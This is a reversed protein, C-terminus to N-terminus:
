RAAGEIALGGLAERLQERTQEVGGTVSGDLSRMDVGSLVIRLAFAEDHFRDVARRALEDDTEARTQPRPALREGTDPPLPERDGDRTAAADVDPDVPVEERETEVCRLRGGDPGVLCIEVSNATGAVRVVFAGDEDDLRPSHELMDTAIGAASGRPGTVRAPLTMRLRRLTGPDLQLVRGYHSLAAAKDGISWAARAAIAETRALLLGEASPMAAIARRALELARQEDGQALAVEAGIADHLPAVPTFGQDTKRARALAVSVVGAGLVDVLDGVLWTPVPEIGGRVYLRLTAVLRKEDALVGTVREGDRLADLEGWWASLRGWLRQVFGGTSSSERQREARARVLARRLLAHAGAAQEPKSSVLGRRDPREVARTVLHVGTDFEGVVLLVTALAVDTEAHDQDRLHAPQRARWRQMERLADIAAGGRGADAHLRALLRWPNATTFDLRRTGEEALQRAEDHAVMALASLAANYAHVAVQQGQEPHQPDRPRAARRRAHELANKCAEYQAARAGAEAEIACLANLGLSSEWPDGTAIARRAFDRAEDFRGLRLLPWAHEGLLDPDYLSDYFELMQLQYEYEEIEGALQAIAFLIEQHLQKPAGAPTTVGYRGEFIERARGLHYMARALSGEAERLVAGMVYHAVISDRDVALVREAETRASLLKNQGYLEYARRESPPGSAPAPRDTTAPDATPRGPGEQAGAGHGAALACALSACAALYGLPWGRPRARPV